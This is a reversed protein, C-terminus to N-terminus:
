INHIIWQYFLIIGILIPQHILYVFLSKRGMWALPDRAPADMSPPRSALWPVLMQKGLAFGLLGAALWPVMPVWDATNPPQTGLGLWIIAPNNLAPVAIVENAILVAAAGAAAVFPHFPALAAIVIGALAIHHLIGFYVPAQPLVFFTAVTVLLAAAAIFGTRKWFSRSRLLPTQSADAALALSVGSVLLFSGAIIKAAMQMALDRELTWTVLGFQFGDWLAHYIIMALLAFGRVRDLADFRPKPQPRFDAPTM